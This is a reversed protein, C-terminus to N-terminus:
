ALLVIKGGAQGSEIHKLAVKAESLAYTRAIPVTLTGAAAMAILEPSVSDRYVRGEGSGDIYHFDYTKALDGRVVTLIRHHDPVFELSVNTAEDTGAADLAIDIGEPAAARVRDALGPGYTVPIGGFDSVNKANRASTTGIVTLGLRAAQQLVSEGLAGSAGHLLLTEGAQPNVRHLIEAATTGVLLLGAAEAYSLNKPKLYVDKARVNVRTAYGGRVRFSLVDDGVALAGSAPQADEGIATVVGSVEVGLPYPLKAPDSLISLIKTDFRNISAARVEVTVEGSGPPPVEHAQFDLSDINGGFETAVWRRDM